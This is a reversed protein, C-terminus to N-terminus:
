DSSVCAAHSRGACLSDFAGAGVAARFAAREPGSRGDLADLVCGPRSRASEMLLGAHLRRVADDAGGILVGVARPCWQRDGILPRAAHLIELHREADAALPAGAGFLATWGAGDAPFCRFHAQLAAVRRAEAGRQARAQKTLCSAAAGHDGAVADPVPGLALLAALTVLLRM